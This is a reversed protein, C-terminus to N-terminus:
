ELRFARLYCDALHAATREIDLDKERRQVVATFAMHEVGGMVIDRMMLPTLGLESDVTVSWRELLRVFQNSFRRLLDRARSRRYGKAARVERLWIRYIERADVIIRLQIAILDRLGDRLSPAEAVAREAEAIRENFHLLSVRLVLDRKDRFYNYLTGESLGAARAVEAMSVNEYGGEAYLAWAVDLIGQEREGWRGVPAVAGRSRKGNLSVM